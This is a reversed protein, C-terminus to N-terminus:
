LEMLGFIPWFISHQPFFIVRHSELNFNRRVVSMQIPMFLSVNPPKSTLNIRTRKLGFNRWVTESIIPFLKKSLEFPKENFYLSQNLKQCIVYNYVRGFPSLMQRSIQDHCIEILFLPCIYLCLALFLLWNYM